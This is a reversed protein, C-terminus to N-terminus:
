FSFFRESSRNLNNDGSMLGTYPMVPTGDPIDTILM